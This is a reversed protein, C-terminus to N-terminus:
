VKYISTAMEMYETLLQTQVVVNFYVLELWDKTKNWFTPRPVFSFVSYGEGDFKM